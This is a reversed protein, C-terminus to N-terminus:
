PSGHAQAKKRRKYWVIGIATVSFAGFILLNFTKAYHYLLQYNQGLTFFLFFCTISWILCAGLDRLIFKLFPTKSMGTTMFIGNRIGFPIFRGVVLAWFGWKEYFVKIKSLRELSLIKSFFPKEQLKPGVLRGLWYAIWASFYCGLFISLFLHVTHEPVTTAALVAAIIIFLDISIPFNMGALLVAGFIYWHALHAHRLIFNVLFDM